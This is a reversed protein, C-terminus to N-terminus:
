MCKKRGLSLHGKMNSINWYVFMSQWRPNPGCPITAWWKKYGTAQTELKWVAVLDGRDSLDGHHICTSHAHHLKSVSTTGIHTSNQHQLQRWSIPIWKYVSVLHFYTSMQWHIMSQKDYPDPWSPPGPKNGPKTIMQYCFRTVLWAWRRSRVCIMKVDNGAHKRMHKCSAFKVM